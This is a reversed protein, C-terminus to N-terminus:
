HPRLPTLTSRLRRKTRRSSAANLGHARRMVARLRAFSLCNSGGPAPPDPPPQRPLSRYRQLHYARGALHISYEREGSSWTFTCPSSRRNASLSPSAAAHPQRSVASPDGAPHQNLCNGLGHRPPGPILDYQGTAAEAAPLAIRGTEPGEAEGFRRSVPRWHRNERAKWPLTRGWAKARHLARLQPMGSRRLAAL